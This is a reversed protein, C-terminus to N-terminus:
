STSSMLLNEYPNTEGATVIFIAGDQHGDIRQKLHHQKSGKRDQEDLDDAVGGVLECQRIRRGRLADGDEQADGHTSRDQRPKRDPGDTRLPVVSDEEPPDVGPRQDAQEEGDEDQEGRLAALHDM